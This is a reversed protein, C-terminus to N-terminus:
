VIVVNRSANRKARHEGKAARIGNRGPDTRNAPRYPIKGRQLAAKAYVMQIFGPDRAPTGTKERAFVYLPPTLNCFAFLNM